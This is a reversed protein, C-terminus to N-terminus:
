LQIVGVAALTIMLAIYFLFALIVATSHPWQRALEVAQRPTM